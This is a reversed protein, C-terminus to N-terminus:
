DRFLLSEFNYKRHGGSASSFMQKMRYKNSGFLSITYVYEVQGQQVQNHQEALVETLNANCQAIFHLVLDGVGNSFLGTSASSLGLSQSLFSLLLFMLWSIM